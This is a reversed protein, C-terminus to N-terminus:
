KGQENAKEKVEIMKGLIEKAQEFDLGFKEMMHHGKSTVGCAKLSLAKLEEKQLYTV